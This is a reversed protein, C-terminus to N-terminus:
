AIPTSTQTPGQEPAEQRHTHAFLRFTRVPASVAQHRGPLQEPHGCARKRRTAARHAGGPRPRGHPQGGAAVGWGTHHVAHPRLRPVGRGATLRSGARCRGRRGRADAPV